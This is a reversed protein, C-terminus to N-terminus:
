CEGRKRLSSMSPSAKRRAVGPGARRLALKTPDAVGDIAVSGADPRLLGTMLSIATTKGAGNPGTAVWLNRGPCNRFIRKQRRAHHRLVQPLDKVQIMREM